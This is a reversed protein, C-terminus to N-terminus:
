GPPTPPLSRDGVVGASLPPVEDVFWVSRSPSSDRTPPASHMARIHELRRPVVGGGTSTSTEGTGPRSRHRQQQQQPSHHHRGSSSSSPENLIGHVHQLRSPSPTPTHMYQQQRQQQKQQPTAPGRTRGREETTAGPPTATAGPAHHEGRVPT